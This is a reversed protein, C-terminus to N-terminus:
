LAKRFRQTGAMESERTYKCLQLPSMLIYSFKILEVYPFGWECCCGVSCIAGRALMERAKIEKLKEIVNIVCALLLLFVILFSSKARWLCFLFVINSTKSINYCGFALWEREAYHLFLAGKRVILLENVCLESGGNERWQSILFL